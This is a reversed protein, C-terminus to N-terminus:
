CQIRAKLLGCPCLHYDLASQLCVVLLQCVVCAYYRLIFFGCGHRGAAKPLLGYVENLPLVQSNDLSVILHYSTLLQDQVGWSAVIIDTSAYFYKSAAPRKQRTATTRREVAHVETTRFIKM